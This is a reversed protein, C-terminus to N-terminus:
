VLEPDQSLLKVKRAAKAEKDILHPYCYNGALNNHPNFSITCSSKGNETLGNKPQVATSVEPGTVWGSM